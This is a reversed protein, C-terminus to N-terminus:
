PAHYKGEPFTILVVGSIVLIIMSKAGPCPVDNFDCNLSHMQIFTGVVNCM